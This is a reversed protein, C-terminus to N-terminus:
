QGQKKLWESRESADAAMPPFQQFCRHIWYILGIAALVIIVFLVCFIKLIM